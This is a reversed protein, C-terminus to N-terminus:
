WYPRMDKVRDREPEGDVSVPQGGIHVFGDLGITSPHDYMAYHGYVQDDLKRFAVFQMSEPLTARIKESWSVDAQDAGISWSRGIPAATRMSTSRSSNRTRMM